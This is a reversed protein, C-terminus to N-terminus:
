IVCRITNNYSTLCKAVAPTHFLATFIDNSSRYLSSNNLLLINQDM